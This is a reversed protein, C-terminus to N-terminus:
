LLCLWSKGEPLALTVSFSRVPSEPPALHAGQKQMLALPDRKDSEPFNEFHEMAFVLWAVLCFGWLCVFVFGFICVTHELDYMQSHNSCEEKESGLAHCEM